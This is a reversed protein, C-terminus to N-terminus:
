TSQAALARGLADGSAWATGVSSPAGWADGCVGLGDILLYPEPHAALPRAFTWRHAHTWSPAATIGLLARTADTIAPIAADPDELHERALEPTSHAVLVAAGDGRRDGDDALFTLTPSGNVFAGHFDAWGREPWGLAVSLTPAWDNSGTLTARAPDGDPLLRAAQPDPMALVVADYREGDADFGGDAGARRAIEAVPHQSEVDFGGALDAVLSRLGGPTSYRLPGAKVTLPGGSDSVSLSDTWGRALGRDLWGQVLRGFSSGLDATFFAAGLDVPRGDFRRSAMRGGVVRGREVIRAGIGADRLARACAIGSIGAGVILVSAPPTTM